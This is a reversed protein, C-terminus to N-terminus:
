NHLHVIGNEKISVVDPVFSGIIKIKDSSDLSFIKSM